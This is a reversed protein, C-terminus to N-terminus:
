VRACGCAYVYTRVSDASELVVAAAALPLHQAPLLTSQMRNHRKGTHVRNYVLYLTSIYEVIIYTYHLSFKLMATTTM